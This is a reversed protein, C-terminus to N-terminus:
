YKAAIVEPHYFAQLPGLILHVHGYLPPASMLVSSFWLKYTFAATTLHRRLICLSLVLWTLIVCCKKDGRGAMCGCSVLFLVNVRATGRPFANRGQEAVLIECTLFPLHHSSASSVGLCGWPSSLLSLPPGHHRPVPSCHARAAGDGWMDRKLLSRQWTDVAGWTPTCALRRWPGRGVPSKHAPHM